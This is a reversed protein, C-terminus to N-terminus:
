FPEIKHKWQMGQWENHTENDILPPAHLICAQECKRENWLDQISFTSNKKLSFLSSSAIKFNLDKLWTIYFLNNCRQTNKRHLIVVFLYAIEDLCGKGQFVKQAIQGHHITM